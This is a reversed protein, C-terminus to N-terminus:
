GNIKTKSGSRSNKQVLMCSQFERQAIIGDFKLIIGVPAICKAYTNSKLDMKQPTFFLTKYFQITTITTKAASKHPRQQQIVQFIM